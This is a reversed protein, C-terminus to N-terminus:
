NTAKPSLEKILNMVAAPKVGNIDGPKIYTGDGFNIMVDDDSAAVVMFIKHNKLWRLLEDISWMEEPFVYLMTPESVDAVKPVDLGSFIKSTAGAAQKAQTEQASAIRIAIKERVLTRELAALAMISIDPLLVGDLHGSNLIDQAEDPWEFEIDRIKQLVMPSVAWGNKHRRVAATYNAPLKHLLKDLEEAQEVTLRGDRLPETLWHDLEYFRHKRAVRSVREATLDTPYLNNVEEWAQVRAAETELMKLPAVHSSTKPPTPLQKAITSNQILYYANSQGFGWEKKCYEDFSAHKGEWLRREKIASLALGVNVFTDLGERILTELDALTATTYNVLKGM